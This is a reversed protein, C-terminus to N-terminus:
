KWKLTFYGTGGEYSSVKIRYTGRMCKSGGYVDRRIYLNGYNGPYVVTYRSQGDPFYVTVKVGGSYSGGGCLKKANVYLAVTQKKPNRLVYWHAKKKNTVFIAKKTKYKKLAKAKSKRTGYTSEKVRKFKYKVKVSYSSSKVKFTYTGKKVGIYRTHNSSSIYEYDRFGPGKLYAYGYEDSPFVKLRLYGKGTVRIKFTRYSSYGDYMDLTLSKEKKTATRTMAPEAGTAFSDDTWESVAEPEESDETDNQETVFKLDDSASGDAADEGLAFAPLVLALCLVMSLIQIFILDLGKVKRKMIVDGEV